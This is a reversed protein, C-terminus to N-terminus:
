GGEGWEQFLEVPRMKGNEYMFAYYEVMNVEKVREKYRGVGVPALGWAPGTAGEQEKIKYSFFHCKQKNLTAVCPTEKHCKWTCIL